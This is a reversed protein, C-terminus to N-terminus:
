GLEEELARALRRLATRTRTKVTGLPLGLYGAIESQSMEAWYALEVVPRETDPLAAVARHVQWAEWDAEARRDPGPEGSAREDPAEVAAEPTRRLVDTVANRAITFLWPAGAGRAPDFRGASRWLSAFADQTADEARGRDRIRRLALGFIARAYRRHLEEFAARDGEAVREILVADTPGTSEDATDSRPLMSGQARAPLPTALM